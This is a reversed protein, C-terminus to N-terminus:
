LVKHPLANTISCLIVFWIIHINITSINYIYMEENKTCLKCLHYLDVFIIKNPTFKLM